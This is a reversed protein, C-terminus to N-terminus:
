RVPIDDKLRAFLNELEMERVVEMLVKPAHRLQKRQESLQQLMGNIERMDRDLNTEPM